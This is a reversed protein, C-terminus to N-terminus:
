ALSRWGKGEWLRNFEEFSSFRFFVNRVFMRRWREQTEESPDIVVVRRLKEGRREFALSLLERAKLDTIPLSYGWIVLIGTRRLQEAAARWLNLWLGKEVRKDWYPLLVPPRWPSDGRYRERGIPKYVLERTFEAWTGPWKKRADQTEGNKDERLKWNLSGHLKYLTPMDEPVSETREGLGYFWEGFPTTTNPKFGSCFRDTLAREAVFDYNFTLVADPHYLREFLYRHNECARSGHAESLLARVCALFDEVLRRGPDRGKGGRFLLFELVARVHLSYFMKEMSQWLSDGKYKVAENIIRRMSRKAAGPETRAELRQLLDFFDSDLPSPMSPGPDNASRTLGTAYSVDRSAGAGLIVTIIPRTKENM